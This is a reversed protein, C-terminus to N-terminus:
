NLTIDRIEDSLGHRTLASAIIESHEQNLSQAMQFMVPDNERVATMLRSAIIELAAFSDILNGEPHNHLLAANRDVYDQHISKLATFDPMFGRVYWVNFGRPDRKAQYLRFFDALIQQQNYFDRSLTLVYADLTNDTLDDLETIETTEVEAHAPLTLSFVLGSLLLFLFLRPYSLM